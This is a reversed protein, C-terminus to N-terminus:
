RSTTHRSDSASSSPRIVFRQRWVRRPARAHHRAFLPSRALSSRALSFWSALEALVNVSMSLGFTRNLM